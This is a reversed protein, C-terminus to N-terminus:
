EVSFLSHGADCCDYSPPFSVQLEHVELKQAALGQEARRRADETIKQDQELRVLVQLMAVEQEKKDALAQQLEALEQELQEIRANLELRNDEKVMEMLATELEEARLIASRKEELLSCLEVKLWVVQDQPDPLAELESDVNLSSLMENLNSSCSALQVSADAVAVSEETTKSEEVLSGRDHKFSYLKTAIGKSDKLARGKMSREEIVVLVSPLHKDRLEKLRAETVAPYGMCATFVLQSSDFTSGVLSQLLTIADGADKTTVLAPGYLEMLALATRFLMVRNGEFLLVDWVRLVSEWPIVNVFISLFWSGSIWPVQVGLYDLHNVLKPFRERMLEEFILQDVQSEIMDETYYGAFYEDIIGVFAWFANEEPMLLLLLGAFFNM